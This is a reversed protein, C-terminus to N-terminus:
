KNLFKERISIIDTKYPYTKTEINRDANYLEKCFGYFYNELASTLMGTRVIYGCRLTQDCVGRLKKWLNYYGTKCKTMFGNMDEFVFGEIYEENYKYDEQITQNYLNRFDDWNHLVFAKQKVSCKISESINILTNEDLSSYELTNKIADLLVIQSKDYKIIHPDHKIDIVEFVLTIPNNNEYYNKLIKIVAEKYPMLLTKFYEVYDGKNTSKSAIFLDDNNYDYSVIGLFGNEKLWAKVPFKFKEKLAILETERVENVRFFKEYSRAMIQNNKTDIFLGRALITQRNWNHKYFAERTFNFSSINDGLSKEQVYKNNRLYKVAQEVTEIKFEETNLEETIPQCNELEVINWTHDKNLEVIRLQGGFEVGGELNFVRDAVQTEVKEINRHGHLLFTNESTERMWTEAIVESDKYDGIGKIFGIAPTFLLNKKLTPIGGHCALIELGNYTFHSMQRLKRYFMRAKKADFNGAILQPKTKFEFVRSSAPSDNGYNMLHREHNGELLCVNPKEMVSYLWNLVEANQNGRDFYDGLFIYATESDIGNKFYQMLTDYCGHIDGIFVVKNYESLDFPSELLEEFQNPKLVTVGSPVKQTAFRAYINEIAENPVWKYEPRQKNQRLCTELPVETFDICYIRYRYQSALDKYQQIDRTKSATADIITFEGRSMRYELLSFLMNWTQQETEKNHAIAYSGDAKLEYSSCLLRIDDPCLTYAELNHEKIWTSKGCGPAGRLIVLTRM